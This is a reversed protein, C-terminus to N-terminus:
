ANVTASRLPSPRGSTTEFTVNEGLLKLTRSLVVSPLEVTGIVTTSWVGGVTAIVVWGTANMISGVAVKAKAPESGTTSPMTEPTSAPSKLTTVDPVTAPPTVRTAPLPEVYVTVTLPMVPSPVSASLTFSSSEITAATFPKGSPPGPTPLPLM